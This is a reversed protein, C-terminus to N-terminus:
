ITSCPSNKSLMSIKQGPEMSSVYNRTRSISANQLRSSTITQMQKELAGSDAQPRVRVTVSTLEDPDVSGAPRSNPLLERQSGPLAVYSSDALRRQSKNSAM